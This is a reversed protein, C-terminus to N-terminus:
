VAEMIRKAVKDTQKQQGTKEKGQKGFNHMSKGM